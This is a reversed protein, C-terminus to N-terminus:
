VVHLYTCIVISPLFLQMSQCIIGATHCPFGVVDTVHPCTLIELESGNCRVSSVAAATLGESFVNTDTVNIAGTILVCANHHRNNWFRPFLFPTIEWVEIIFLVLCLLIYKITCSM